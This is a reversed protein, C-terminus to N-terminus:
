SGVVTIKCSTETDLAPKFGAATEKQANGGCATLSVLVCVALIICLLKKM